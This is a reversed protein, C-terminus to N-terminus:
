AAEDANLMRIRRFEKRHFFNFKHKQQFMMKDTMMRLVPTPTISSNHESSSNSTNNLPTTPQM